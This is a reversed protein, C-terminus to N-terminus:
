PRYYLKHYIAYFTKKIKQHFRPFHKRMFFPGPLLYMLRYIRVPDFFRGGYKKYIKKREPWFKAKQSVSKSREWERYTALAIPVYLSKAKQLIRLWLDIDMNYHLDIDIPGVETFIKKTFFVGPQMISNGHRLVEEFTQQKSKGLLVKQSPYTIGECDGNVLDIDPHKEFLESIAQFANPLYFDDSNMWAFIEGTAISFGQNIADSQGKDKKSWWRYTIGKCRIPYLGRQLLDEYRKIIEVSEDTSGGDAIIYDISFDGAQSLVSQITKEIFKGQNYSPTIISFATTPM